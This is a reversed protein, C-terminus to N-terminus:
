APLEMAFPICTQRQEGLKAIGLHMTDGPRLFIKDPKHGEGVGPPTGTILLDGPHLTIFRSVYAICEAVPFIMTRTNGTQMRRGNVDLFMDLEQCDGVEDPTVLWPGVPGFTDCGKGKDWQGGLEKQFARESVDNALVYGAVHNLADAQEVYRCTTGIVVGLEVEWDTKEADKPIMVPDNPGTLCSIAKTFFIPEPPPELGSEKAHDAYNLGIAIFKGIGAVPVGYRPDGEVLPLTEPDVTRLCELAEPTITAPTVDDIVGSLDRIRGQGDVLGPKEAGKQGYRCLKM